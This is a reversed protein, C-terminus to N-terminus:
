NWAKSGNLGALLSSPVLPLPNLSPNPMASSHTHFLQFMAPIPLISHTLNVISQTPACLADALHIAAFELAQVLRQEAGIACQNGAHAIATCCHLHTVVPIDCANSLLLPLGLAEVEPAEVIDFPQDHHAQLFAACLLQALALRYLGEGGASIAASLPPALLNQQVRNALDPTEHLTINSPTRSITPFPSRSSTFMM